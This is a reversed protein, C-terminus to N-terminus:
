LNKIQEATMEVKPNFEGGIMYKKLSFLLQQAEPRKDLDTTLDIGSILIKGKGVKAEFILGLSRNEFWDDIIRVIPNINRNLNNLIIANSHSMADWWQYDSYFETPFSALAPHNPNCLIGLTQPPLGGTWATNWFISSFGVAIDGGYESKLAGKKLNLFVKGGQNLAQLTNEDITQTVIIEDAKIPTNKKPYVWINWDNQFTDVSVVLNMQTPESIGNLSLSIEGIRIGNGIPINVAELKKEAFVIGKKDVLKWTPTINKLEAEGFHAVEITTQLTDESTYIMKPLRVLPVTTNCFKRFEGATIYGKEEWFANLVGVLATGQGPFDNLGLLQFGGFNKTRLAAEIDAKYCLAQLKGSAIMFSDALHSLGSEGLTERFIEFNKPKLIGTYKDIEKFDPYVCWQGIEHSVTPIAFDAIKGSWDYTNKPPEANIISKLGEGWDMVRPSPINNFENEAIIPRGAASCYVRRTDKEKWYNVLKGYWANISEKRFPENGQLLMCFSPHNGYEKLIRDGEDYSYQDIGLGDSITTSWNPWSSCEIQLYIGLIDAAEFAAAPPCWSHFRIHNLGHNKIIEFIRLWEEKQTPPYGTKPYVACDVTGRLFIERSNITFVTGKTKFDRMGFTVEKLIKESGDVKLEAHMQYLNPNFEDWLQPNEGMPYVFEFEDQQKGMKFTWSKETPKEKANEFLPIAKLTLTLTETSAAPKQIRTKITVTKDSINPYIQFDDFFVPNSAEIYLEGVIGNWNGQTHDSISHSNIGVDIDKISNDIRINITHSGPKLYASLDFVNSTGLSNKMGVYTSDVWVKTEWHCRELVLEIRKGNWNEPIEIRKQYWAAGVYHRTPQLWFPIKMNGPERYKKYKDLSYWSSDLISGTWKTNLDVLYGKNNEAMSGPLLVTDNYTRSYWREATGKDDPDIKFFWEGALNIKENEVTACSVLMLLAALFFLCKCVNKTGM